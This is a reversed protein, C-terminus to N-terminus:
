QKISWIVRCGLKKCGYYFADVSWQTWKVMSGISLYVIKQGDAHAENMWAFLKPDKEELLRLQNDRSRLLPGTLFINSPLPIADEFGWFSNSICIGTNGMSSM